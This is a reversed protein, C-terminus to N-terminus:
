CANSAAMCQKYNSGGINVTNCAFGTPCGITTCDQACAKDGDPYTVCKDMGVLTCESDQTCTTCLQSSTPVCVFTVQGEVQIGTVGLCGYSAPCDGCTKTCQGSTGVLICLGSECQDNKTCPEGFDNKPPADVPAEPADEFTSTNGDPSVGGKGSACAAMVVACILWRARM